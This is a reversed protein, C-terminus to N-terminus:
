QSVTVNNPTVDKLPEAGKETKDLVINKVEPMNAVGTVQASTRTIWANYCTLLGVIAAMIIGLASAQDIGWWAAFYGAIMGLIPGFTALLQTQFPTLNNLPNM